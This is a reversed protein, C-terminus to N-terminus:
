LQMRLKECEMELNAHRCSMAREVAKNLNAARSKCCSPGAAILLHLIRASKTAAHPCCSFTSVLDVLALLFSSRTLHPHAALTEELDGSTQLTELKNQLVCLAHFKIVRQQVKEHEMGEKIFPEEVIEVLKTGLEGNLIYKSSYVRCQESSSIQVLSEMGLLVMDPRGQNIMDMAIELGEQVCDNTVEMSETRVSDPVRKVVPSSPRSMGRAGHLVTKAIHRFSRSCGDCRQIEVLTQNNASWLRIDFQVRCDTRASALVQLFFHHTM